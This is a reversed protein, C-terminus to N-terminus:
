LYFKEDGVWVIVFTPKKGYGVITGSSIVSPAAPWDKWLLGDFMKIASKTRMEQTARLPWGADAAVERLTPPVEYLFQKYVNFPMDEKNFPLQKM